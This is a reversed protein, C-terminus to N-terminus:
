GFLIYEATDGSKNCANFNSIVFSSGDLWILNTVEWRYQDIAYTKGPTLFYIYDGGAYYGFIVAFKPAFPLQVTRSSSGNGVISGTAIHCNGTAEAFADIAAFNENFESMRFADSGVWSHLNLNTTKNTSM